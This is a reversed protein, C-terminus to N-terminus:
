QKVWEGGVRWESAFMYRPVYDAWSWNIVMKKKRRVDDVFVLALKLFPWWVELKTRVQLSIVCWFNTHLVRLISFVLLGACWLGNCLPFSTMDCVFRFYSLGYYNFPTVKYTLLLMSMVIVTLKCLWSSELLLRYLSINSPLARQPVVEVGVDAM